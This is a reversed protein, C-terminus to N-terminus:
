PAKGWITVYSINFNDCLWGSWGNQNEALLFRHRRLRLKAESLRSLYSSGNPRQPCCTAETLTYLPHVLLTKRLIFQNYEHVPSTSLLDASCGDGYGDMSKSVYHSCVTNDRNLRIHSSNLSLSYCLQCCTVM